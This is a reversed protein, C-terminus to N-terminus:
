SFNNLEYMKVQKPFFFVFCNQQPIKLEPNTEIISSFSTLMIKKTSEPYNEFFHGSIGSFSQLSSLFANNM